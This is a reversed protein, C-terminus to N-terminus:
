GPKHDQYILSSIRIFFSAALLVYPIPTIAGLSFLCLAPIAVFNAGINLADIHIKKKLLAQIKDLSDSVLGINPKNQKLLTHLKKLEEVVEAPAARLIEAQKRAEMCQKDEFSKIQKKEEDNLEFKQELFSRLAKVKEKQIEASTSDQLSKYLNCSKAIQITRSVTSMITLGYAIPMGLSSLTQIPQRAAVELTTNIFTSVSDFIDMSLITFSFMSLAMGEHDKIQMSKFIKQATGKLTSCSFPVGVISAFKMRTTVFKVREPFNQGVLSVIRESAAAANLSHRCVAIIKGIYNWAHECKEYFQEPLISTSQDYVTKLSNM